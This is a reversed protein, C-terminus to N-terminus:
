VELKALEVVSLREYDAKCLGFQALVSDFEADVIIVDEYTSEYLKYVM